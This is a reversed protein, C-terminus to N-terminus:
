LPNAYVFCARVRSSPYANSPNSFIKGKNKERNIDKM